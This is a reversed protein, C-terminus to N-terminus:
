QASKAKWSLERVELLANTKRRNIDTEHVALRQLDSLGRRRQRLLDLISVPMKKRAASKRKNVLSISPLAQNIELHGWRLLGLIVTHQHCFARLPGSSFFVIEM